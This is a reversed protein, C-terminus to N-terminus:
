PAEAPTPTAKQLRHAMREDIIRIIRVIDERSMYDLWATFRVIYEEYRASWKYIGPQRGEYDYYSLRSQDAVSSQYTWRKPTPGTHVPLIFREYIDAAKAASEFRYAEQHVHRSRQYGVKRFVIMACDTGEVCIDGWAREPGDTSWDAPLDELGILLDRTTFPREPAPQAPAACGGFAVVLAIVCVSIAVRQERLKM